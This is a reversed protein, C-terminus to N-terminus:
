PAVDRACRFGVNVNVRNQQNPTRNSVRLNSSDDAFAGGRVLRTSGALAGAPDVRAEATYLTSADATWEWVNGAMDFLGYGNAGFTKVPQARDSEFVAGKPSHSETSPAEDGWPYISGDRGGRAAYEWEAETPLRGGIAECFASAEDWTVIVIPHAATTSWPPQPEVDSVVARYMGVTVETAMLEFPKTLKVSHRPEEDINCRRDAPVCGMQFVGAPISAWAVDPPPAGPAQGAVTSVALFVFSPISLRTM